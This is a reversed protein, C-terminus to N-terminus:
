ESASLAAARITLERLAETRYGRIERTSFLLFSCRWGGLRGIRKGMMGQIRTRCCFGLPWVEIKVILYVRQAGTFHWGEFLWGREGQIM